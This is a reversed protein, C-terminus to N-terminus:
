AEDIEFLRRIARAREREREREGAEKVRDARELARKPAVTVGDVIASGLERVTERQEETLDGRADLASVAEEVERREIEAIRHRLRRRLREPDPTSEVRGPDSRTAAVESRPVTVDPGDTSM